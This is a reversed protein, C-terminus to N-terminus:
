RDEEPLAPDNEFCRQGTCTVTIRHPADGLCSIAYVTTAGQKWIQRTSRPVCRAEQLARELHHHDAYVHGPLVTGLLVFSLFLFSRM